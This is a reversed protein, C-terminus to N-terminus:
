DTVTCFDGVAASSSPPMAPETEIRVARGNSLGPRRRTPLASPAYLEIESFTSGFKEKRALLVKPSKPTSTETALCCRVLRVSEFEPILKRGIARQVSRAPALRFWAM